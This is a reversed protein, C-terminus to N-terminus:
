TRMFDGQWSQVARKIQDPTLREAATRHILSPLEADSAFRLAVLQKLEFQTLSSELGLRTLRIQMELRIIRDQLRLAYTRILAVALTLTLGLLLLAFSQLSPERYAGWLFLLTVLVAGSAAVLWGTPRHVHTAYSQAPM